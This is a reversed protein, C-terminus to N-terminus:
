LQQVKGYHVHNKITDITERAVQILEEQNFSDTVITQYYIGLHKLKVILNHIAQMEKEHLRLREKIKEPDDNRHRLNMKVKEKSTLLIIPYLQDKYESDILNRVGDSNVITEAISNRKLTQDIADRNLGYQHGDFSVHEVYKHMAINADFTPTDIFNYDLGDYEGPRKPRTTDSVIIQQEKFLADQITNKGSGSPGTLTILM